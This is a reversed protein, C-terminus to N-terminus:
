ITQIHFIYGGGGGLIYNTHSVHGGGLIYNTHSVHVGGLIYNTHSVHVGGWYITQIHFMYGGGLIYNIYSVHVGGGWYITQIHFM